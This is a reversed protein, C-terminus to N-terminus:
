EQHWFRTVPLREGQRFEYVAEIRSVVKEIEGEATARYIKSGATIKIGEDSGKLLQRMRDYEQNTIGYINGFWDQEQLNKIEVMGEKGRDIIYPGTSFWRDDRTGIVGDRGKRYAAVKLPLDPYDVGFVAFLATESATNINVEGETYITIFDKIKSFIEATIGKVLLLEEVIEFNKNKCYYPNDLGLYYEGEAGLFSNNYPDTGIADDADRWDVICYAIEYAQTEDEECALLLDIFVDPSATNINIRSSEDALGFLVPDDGYYLSYSGKNFAHKKFLEPNNAWPQNLADITDPYGKAYELSKQALAYVIGAKALFFAKLKDTQYSSLKLTVASRHAVSVCLASLVTIIWLTTILIAGNKNINM